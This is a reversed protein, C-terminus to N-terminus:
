YNIVRKDFTLHKGQNYCLHFYDFRFNFKRAQIYSIISIWIFIVIFKWCAM